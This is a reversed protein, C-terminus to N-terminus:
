APRKIFRKMNFRLSLPMNTSPNILEVMGNAVSRDHEGKWQEIAECLPQKALRRVRPKNKRIAWRQLHDKLLSATATPILEDNANTAKLSEGKKMRSVANTLTTMVVVDDWLCNEISM